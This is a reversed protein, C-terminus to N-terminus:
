APRSRAHHRAPLRAHGGAGGAARRLHQVHARLPGGEPRRRRRDGRGAVQAPQGRLGGPPGRDPGAGTVMNRAFRPRPRWCGAATPWRGRGRRARRLGQAVGLARRGLPRARGAGGARRGAAGRRPPRAPLGAARAGAGGRPRRQRRALHSVGNRAHVAPGAWSPPAHGGRGDGGAGGRPRDPVHQGAPAMVVFDALAPSYAGGGASTGSVVAIQPVRGSLEVQARFIRGYGALAAVGEDMRAGASEVFGVVPTGARAALEMVRVISDAHARGLSGGVVSSDQAYCHVPRGRSPARAWWCATARRAGPRTPSWGPACWACRARTACCSWGCGRTSSGSGPARM